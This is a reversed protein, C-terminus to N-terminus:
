GGPSNPPITGRGVGVYEFGMSKMRQPDLANRGDFVFKPAAMRRGVAAWDADVIENWETIVVAAQPGTAATLVDPAIRTAVPLSM